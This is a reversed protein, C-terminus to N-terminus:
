SKRCYSVIGLGQPVLLARFGGTKLKFILLCACRLSWIIVAVIIFSTCITRTVWVHLSGM